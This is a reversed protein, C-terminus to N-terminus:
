DNKKVFEKGCITRSCKFKSTVGSKKIEIARSECAPCFIM